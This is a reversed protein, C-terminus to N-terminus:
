GRKREIGEPVLRWSGRRVPVETQMVVSDPQVEWGGVSLREASETIAKIRQLLDEDSPPAPAPEQELEPQEKKRRRGPLCRDWLTSVITPVEPPPEPAYTILGIRDIEDRHQQYYENLQGLGAKLDPAWVFEQDPRLFLPALRAHLSDGSTFVMCFPLYYLYSVDIVNSRNGSIQGIGMGLYFVLDVTLVFAGYPAFERLPPRGASTYRRDIAGVHENPVGLLQQAFTLIERGSRSVFADAFARAENLGRIRQDPPVIRRVLEITNDFDVSSLAARWQRAYLREVEHFQGAKWRRITEAEPAEKFHVSVGGGPDRKPIGGALAIQGTMAVRHGLLDQLVLTRHYVNPYPHFVPTKNVLDAILAEEPSRGKADEKELDALSEVYFVPTVNTLFFHDLLVSEDLTLAQLASKDFILIPGAAM